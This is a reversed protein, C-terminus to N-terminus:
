CDGVVDAEGGVEIDAGSGSFGFEIVEPKLHAFLVHYSYEM